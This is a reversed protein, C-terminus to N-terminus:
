ATPHSTGESEQPRATARRVLNRIDIVNSYDRTKLPNLRGSSQAYAAIMKPVQRIPINLEDSIQALTWNQESRLEFAAKQYTDMLREAFENEIKHISDLRELVRSQLELSDFVEGLARYNVYTSM